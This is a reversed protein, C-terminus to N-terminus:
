LLDIKSLLTVKTLRDLFNDIRPIPYIDKETMKNLSRYDVCMQLTGDRQMMFLIPVSKPAHITPYVRQDPVQKGAIWVSALFLQAPAPLTHGDQLHCPDNSSLHALAPVRAHHQRRRANHCMQWGRNTMMSLPYCQANIQLTTATHVRMGSRSSLPQTLKPHTM